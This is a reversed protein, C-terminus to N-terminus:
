QLTNGTKWVGKTDACDALLKKIRKGTIPEIEEEAIESLPELYFKRQKLLPHPIILGPSIFILQNSILIDIDIIRSDWKEKRKRGMKKEISCTKEFLETLNAETRINICANLFEPINNRGWPETKYIHSCKTKGLKSIEKFASRLNTKKKGINSGISLYADTMM